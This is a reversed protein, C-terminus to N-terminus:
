EGSTISKSEEIAGALLEKLEAVSKREADATEASSGDDKNRDIIQLAKPVLQILLEKSYKQASQWMSFRLNSGAKEVTMSKDHMHESAWLVAKCWSLAAKDDPDINNEAPEPEFDDEEPSHLSLMADILEARTAGDNLRRYVTTRSLGTAKAVDDITIRKSM